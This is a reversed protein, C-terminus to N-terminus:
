TFNVERFRVKLGLAPAKGKEQDIEVEQPYGPLMVVYVYDTGATGTTGSLSGYRLDAYKVLTTNTRGGRLFDRITATKRSIDEGVDYVVEYTRFTEPKEVGRAEFYHVEPTTTNSNTTLWLEFSIRNCSLATSLNTKVVGNTTIAAATLATASTDTDKRYKPTVTIAATCGKTETVLGQWMKDWFPNSGYDYSMRLWNADTTDFQYASDALPNDSLYVYATSTGYGFWLRKVTASHQCIAITACANTGLFVFPCWQWRLKGASDRVERGKYIHTNTGEDVAWYLWNKDADIGVTDGRKDIDDIDTLPSVPAYTSAATMEGGGNIESHYVSAQWSAIYKFNDTSLNNKLDARLPLVGGDTLYEYLGDTKGIMLRNNMLFVNTINTATDGIYAPPSTWQVGGAAVTRGDTTSSIENATKSKWLVDQTGAANPAVLFKVAYGDTLDTQTWTIGDGSYYYKTSAGVAAYCIGNYVCLDTVGAVTTTAATWKGNSSVDYRYIKGATACLWNAGSGGPFWVFCVPASDLATDDSEKVEVILPGLITKGDLTTDIAKGEIYMSAESRDKRGHGDIWDSQVFKLPNRHEPIEELVSCLARGDADRVLNLRKTTTGIVLEHDHTRGTM